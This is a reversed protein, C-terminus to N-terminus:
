DCQKGAAGDATTQQHQGTAATTSACIDANTINLENHNKTTDAANVDARADTCVTCVAATGAATFHRRISSHHAERRWVTLHKADHAARSQWLSAYRDTSRRRGIGDAAFGSGAVGEYVYM